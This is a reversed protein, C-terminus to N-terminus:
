GLGSAPVTYMDREMYGRARESFPNDDGGDCVAPCFPFGAVLAPNRNLSVTGVLPGYVM